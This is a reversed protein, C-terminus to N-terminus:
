FGFLFLSLLWVAFCLYRMPEVAQASVEPLVPLPIQIVRFLQSIDQLAEFHDRRDGLVHVMRILRLGQLLQISKMRGRHRALGPLSLM